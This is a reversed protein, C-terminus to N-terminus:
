MLSLHGVVGEGVIGSSGGQGDAPQRTRSPQWRLTFLHKGSNLSGIDDKGYVGPDEVLIAVHEKGIYEIDLSLACEGLHEEVRLALESIHHGLVDLRPSSSSNGEKGRKPRM